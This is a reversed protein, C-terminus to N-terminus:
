FIDVFFINVVFHVFKYVDHKIDTKVTEIGSQKLFVLEKQKDEIGHFSSQNEASSVTSLNYKLSVSQEYIFFLSCSFYRVTENIRAFM